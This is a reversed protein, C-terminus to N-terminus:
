HNHSHSDDQDRTSALSATHWVKTVILERHLRCLPSMLDSLKNFLFMEDPDARNPTFVDGLEYDDDMGIDRILTQVHCDIDALQKFITQLTM